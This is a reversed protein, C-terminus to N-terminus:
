WFIYNIKCTTKSGGLDFAKSNKLSAKIGYIVPYYLLAPVLIIIIHRNYFEVADREWDWEAPTLTGRLM